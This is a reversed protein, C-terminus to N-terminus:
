AEQANYMKFGSMEALQNYRSNLYKEFEEKGSIILSTLYLLDMASSETTYTDITYGSLASLGVKEMLSVADPINSELLSSCGALHLIKGSLSKKNNKILRVYSTRYKLNYGSRVYGSDMHSALYFIDYKKEGFIEFLNNLEEPTNFTFYATDCGTENRVLDIISKYSSRKHSIDNDWLAEACFIKNMNNAGDREKVLM